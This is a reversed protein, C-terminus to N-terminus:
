GFVIEVFDFAFYGFAVVHGYFAQLIPDPLHRNRRLIAAGSPASYM